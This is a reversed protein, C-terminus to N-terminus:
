ASDTAWKSTPSNIYANLVNSRRPCALERKDIVRTYKTTMKKCMFHNSKNDNSMQEEKKQKHARGPPGLEAPDTRHRKGLKNQAGNQTACCVMLQISMTATTTLPPPSRRLPPLSVFIEVDGLNAQFSKCSTDQLPAKPRSAPSSDLFPSM